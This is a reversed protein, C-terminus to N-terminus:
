DLRYARKALDYALARAMARADHMGVIHRAVMGALWNADVRRSLDHRAPISCFARTDDNFGATNYIGATGTTRERYRRMGDLSDHFWWPPGLLLAPYHGALPALERAYTSEDLTFVIMRFRPDNGFANLLPHLNRTYEAAVPIDAGTDAGFRQALMANHDRFSGAHLQMVMGDETSMRAMEMLMHAVFLREEDPSVAGEMAHHFIEAAREPSLHETFPEEVGHDTAAGGKERFFKRREELMRIFDFHGAVRVGALAATREVEQFWGPRRLQFLLDPRFTPIVRGRWGSDRIATHHVLPDSAADTTALVEMNFREFLARPRFETSTLKEFIEDYIRAGTEGSLEVRVGFVDHLTHNVWIGTPTGRFLHYGEAFHQWIKRPERLGLTGADTEGVPARFEEFPIGQSYLMRLIYHDPVVILAALEPFPLDEALIRPDVHGHPSVIPLARVEDFLEGAIRRVTPDSDFFRAEHLRLPETM